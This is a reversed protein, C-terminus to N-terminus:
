FEPEQGQQTEMEACARRVVRVGVGRVMALRAGEAWVRVCLDGRQMPGHSGWACGGAWGREHLAGVCRGVAVAGGILQARARSRKGLGLAGGVPASSLHRLRTLKRM